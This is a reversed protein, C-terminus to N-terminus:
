KMIAMIKNEFNQGNFDHYFPLINLFKDILKRDKKAIEVNKIPIKKTDIKLAFLLQEIEKIGGIADILGYKLAQRGTFVRGDFITTFNKPDIKKGRGLRVVDVFFHYSDIISENIVKDVQPNSKEFMSPSGKLPSSKFTNFKVGVKDALNTLDPSEMLVGISGTLTGNYAFIADSAMSALYAGSAGVSEILVILPKKNRIDLLDRYLIESGVITGGPSNFRVIVAKIAPNEAVQKLIKSRDDDEVIVGEVKIEAVFDSEIVSSSDGFLIKFFLVTSFFIVLFAINKWRLAKQKLYIVAGINTRSFIDLINNKSHPNPNNQNEPKPNELNQNLSESSNDKFDNFFNNYTKPKLIKRKSFFNLFSLKKMIKLIIKLFM